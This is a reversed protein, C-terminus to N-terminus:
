RVKHRQADERSGLGAFAALRRFSTDMSVVEAASTCGAQFLGAVQGGASQSERNQTERQARSALETGLSPAWPPWVVASVHLALSPKPWAHPVAPLTLGCFFSSVKVGLALIKERKTPAGGMTGMDMTLVICYEDRDVSSLTSSM